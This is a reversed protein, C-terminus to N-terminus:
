KKWYTMARVNTGPGVYARIFLDGDPKCETNSAGVIARTCVFCEPCDELPQPSCDYGARSLGVRGKKELVNHVYEAARVNEIWRNAPLDEHHPGRAFPVGSWLIEVNSCRPIYYFCGTITTAGILLTIASPLLRFFRPM